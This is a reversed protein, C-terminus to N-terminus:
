DYVYLEVREADAKTRGDANYASHGCALAYVDNSHLQKLQTIEIVYHVHECNSAPLFFFFGSVKFLTFNM